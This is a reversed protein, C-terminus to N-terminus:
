RALGLAHVRVSKLVQVFLHSLGGPGGHLDCGSGGRSEMILAFDSM